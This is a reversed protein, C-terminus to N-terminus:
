LQGIGCNEHWCPLQNINIHILFFLAVPSFASSCQRVLFTRSKWVIRWVPVSRSSTAGNWCPRPWRVATWTDLEGGMYMGCANRTHDYLRVCIKSCAVAVFLRGQTSALIQEVLSSCSGSSSAAKTQKKVNDVAFLPATL